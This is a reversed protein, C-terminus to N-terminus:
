LAPSYRYLNLSDLKSDGTDKGAMWEFVRTLGDAGEGAADFFGSDYIM